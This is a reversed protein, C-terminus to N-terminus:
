SERPPRCWARAGAIGSTGVVASAPSGPNRVVAHNAAAPRRLQRVRERLADGGIEDFHQLQRIHRRAEAGDAGLRDAIVGACVAVNMRSSIARQRSTMTLFLMWTSHSAAPVPRDADRRWRRDRACRRARGRRDRARPRREAARRQHLQAVLDDLVGSMISCARASLAASAGNPTGSMMLSRTSTASATSASPTCTPWSSMLTSSARPRSPGAGNM